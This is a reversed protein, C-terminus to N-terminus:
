PRLLEVVLLPEAAAGVPVQAHPSWAARVLGQAALLWLIRDGSALVRAQPREGRPV